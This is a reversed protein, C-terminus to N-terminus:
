FLDRLLSKAPVAQGTQEFKGRYYPGKPHQAFIVDWLHLYEQDSLTETLPLFGRQLRLPALRKADVGQAQLRPAWASAWAEVADPSQVAHHLLAMIHSKGRGRQGKLLVPRGAAAQSVAELSRQVDATPYTMRLLERPDRQTWGTNQRNRLEIATGRMHASRFEQRLELQSM